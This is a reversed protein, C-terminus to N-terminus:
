GRQSLIDLLLWIRAQQPSLNGLTILGLEEYCAIPLVSGAGVRSCMVVPIGQARAQRVAKEELPSCRGAGTGAIVLGDLQTHALLAELLQQDAGAYSYIIPVYPTDTPTALQNFRSNVTHQSLTAQQFRVQRDADISGLAGSNRAQFTELHYTHTKSVDSASYIKDNAVVLVGQKHAQPAIAVRFSNLLNFPADSGIASFPRQSGTLVVPKDSNLTLQLFYATEELTNTGHTIVAGSIEPKALETALTDKLEFWQQM